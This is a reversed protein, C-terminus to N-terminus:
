KFLKKIIFIFVYADTENTMSIRVVVFGCVVDKTVM